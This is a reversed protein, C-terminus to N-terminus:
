ANVRRAEDTELEQETADAGVLFVTNDVYYSPEVIQVTIFGNAVNPDHICQVYGDDIKDFPVVQNNNSYYTDVLSNIFEASDKPTKERM